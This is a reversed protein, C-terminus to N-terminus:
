LGVFAVLDGRPLSPRKGPRKGSKYLKVKRGVQQSILSKASALSAISNQWVKHMAGKPEGAIEHPIKTDIPM